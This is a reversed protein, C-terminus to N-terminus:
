PNGQRVGRRIKFPDSLFRNVMVRSKATSYCGNIANIIPDPVGVAELSRWLPKHDVRDYAREKDLLTIILPKNEFEALDWLTQAEKINDHILRKKMLGTQHRGISKEMPGSLRNKIITTFLKYLSETMSLPHYNRIDTKDNKKYMVKITGLLCERYILISMVLYLAEILDCGDPGYEGFDKFFEYPIGSPGPVTSRKWKRLIRTVEKRTFDGKVGSFDGQSLLNCLTQSATRSTPEANYLKQYFERAIETLDGAKNQIKSNVDSM